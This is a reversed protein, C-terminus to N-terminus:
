WSSLQPGKLQSHWFFITCIWGKTLYTLNCTLINVHVNYMLGVTGDIFHKSTSINSIKSYSSVTFLATWVSTQQSGKGKRWSQLSCLTGLTSFPMACNSVQLLLKVRWVICHLAICHRWYQAFRSVSVLSSVVPAVSLRILEQNRLDTKLSKQPWNELKELLFVYIIDIKLKTERTLKWAKKLCAQEDWIWYKDFDVLIDAFINLRCHQWSWNELHKERFCM